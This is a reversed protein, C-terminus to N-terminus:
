KTLDISIGESTGIASDDVADTVAYGFFSGVAAASYERRNGQERIVLDPSGEVGHYHTLSTGRSEHSWIDTRTLTLDITGVLGRVYWEPETGTVTFTLRATRGSSSVLLAGPQLAVAGEALYVDDACRDILHYYVFAGVDYRTATAFARLCGTADETRAQATRSTGRTTISEAHAALPSLLVVLAVALRVIQPMVNIGKM